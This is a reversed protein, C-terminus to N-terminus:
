QKSSIEVSYLSVVSFIVLDKRLSLVGLDDM